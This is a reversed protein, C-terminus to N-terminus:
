ERVRALTLVDVNRAGAKILVRACENVTTGTTFVDDVLLIHKGFVMKKDRVFFANRLNKRREVGSLGTQPPTNRSRVLIDNKIKNKEKDFFSRALLLAQNYGRNRLRKIHLPVPFILDARPLDELSSSKRKLKTFTELGSTNCNYKLSHVLDAIRDDYIFLSRARNYYLSSKMCSSCLHSEGKRGGFVKGCKSCLPKETFYLGDLCTDCILLQSESLNKECCICCPPFCLDKIARMVTDVRKRIMKWMESMMSKM